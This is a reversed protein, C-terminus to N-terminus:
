RGCLKSSFDTETIKYKYGDPYLSEKTPSFVIDVQNKNAIQLDEDWTVPYNKFDDLNNFQTPNVFLSLVVYENDLRAQKLLEEHGAHLAGMTPVFGVRGSGVRRRWAQLEDIAHIVRTM